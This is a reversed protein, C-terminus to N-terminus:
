DITIESQKAMTVVKNKEESLFSVTNRDQDIVHLVDPIENNQPNKNAFYALPMHVESLFQLLYEMYATQLEFMDHDYGGASNRHGDIDLYLVRKKDPFRKQTESILDLLVCAATNFDEHAYVVHYIAAKQNALANYSNDNVGQEIIGNKEMNEVQKYYHDRMERIQKRKEPNGGFLDHCRACLPAANDLVNEGGENEPKIHHVEVFPEKCVVCRFNSKQKATQKIKESFPM